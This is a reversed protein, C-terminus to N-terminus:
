SFRCAALARVTRVPYMRPAVQVEAYVCAEFAATIGSALARGLERSRHPPTGAAKAAPRTPAQRAVFRPLTARILTANGVWDACAAHVRARASPESAAWRRIMRLPLPVRVFRTVNPELGGPLAVAVASEYSRGAPPADAPPVGDLAALLGEFEHTELTSFIRMAVSSMTALRFRSLLPEGHADGGACAPPRSLLTGWFRELLWPLCTGRPECCANERAEKVQWELRLRDQRAADSVQAGVVRHKSARTPSGNGAGPLTISSARMERAASAMWGLRASALLADRAVVFQAEPAYGM